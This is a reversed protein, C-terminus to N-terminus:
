KMVVESENQEKLSALQKELCRNKTELDEIKQINEEPIVTKYIVKFLNNGM